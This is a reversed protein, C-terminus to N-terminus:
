FQYQYPFAYVEYSAVDKAKYYSATSSTEFGIKENPQIENDLVAIQKELLNGDADFLHAVVYVDSEAKDTTNEVRGSVKVGGYTGDKVTIETLDYRVSDVKSKKVDLHPVTKLAETDVAEDLLTEEYYYATEGPLLVQPYGSVMDVTKILKGSDDEVDITGTSLYLNESGTNKVPVTVILYNSGISDKWVYAKGDEVEYLAEQKDNKVTDTQKVDSGGEVSSTTENKSGGAVAVIVIVVVVVIVWFYWKKFISKKKKEEM